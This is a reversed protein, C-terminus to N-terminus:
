LLALRPKLLTSHWLSILNTLTYLWQEAFNSQWFRGNLLKNEFHDLSRSRIYFCPVIRSHASLLIEFHFLAQQTQDLFHASNTSTVKVETTVARPGFCVLNWTLPRMYQRWWVSSKWWLSFSNPDLKFVSLTGVAMTISLSLCLEASILFQGTSNM